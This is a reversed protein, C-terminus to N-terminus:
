WLFWNTRKIPLQFVRQEERLSIFGKKRAAAPMEVDPEVGSSIGLQSAFIGTGVDIVVAETIPPLLQKIAELESELLKDHVTFWNEYKEM